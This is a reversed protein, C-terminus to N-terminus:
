RLWGIVHRYLVPQVLVGFLGMALAFLTWAGARRMFSPDGARALFPVNALTSALCALIVGNGGARANIVGKAAMTGLAAVASASSLMGGLIATGYVGAQGLFRHATVGAVQLVLFILGYRLASVLSFPSGLKLQPRSTGPGAPRHGLLALTSALFMLVLPLTAFAMLFPALLLILVTNRVLMATEALMIGRFAEQQLAGDSAKVNAAIEGVTVTSNVLGGLFGTFAVGRSGYVKWLVYNVFSIGALLLVTLWAARPEITGWPDVPGAPLAPYIVFALLAFIIVARLELETLGLSFGALPDKWALLATTIVAVAAPTLIHGQGCLIGAFGMLILAASTTLELSQALRIHEINVLIVLVTLMLLSALAFPPGLLGGLCGILSAFAFTRLGAEKARRAREMGALLGVLLSLGLRM